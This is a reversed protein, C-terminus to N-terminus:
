AIDDIQMGRFYHGEILRLAVPNRCQGDLCQALRTLFQRLVVDHIEIPLNRLAHPASGIDNDSIGRRQIKGIIVEIHHNREIYQLVNWYRLSPRKQPVDRSSPPQQGYNGGREVIRPYLSRFRIGQSEPVGQHRLRIAPERLMGLLAQRLQALGSCREGLQADPMAHHPVASEIEPAAHQFSMKGGLCHRFQPRRHVRQIIKIRPM